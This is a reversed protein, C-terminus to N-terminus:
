GLPPTLVLIYGEYDGGSHRDRYEVAADFSAFPGHVAEVGLTLDHWLVIFREM